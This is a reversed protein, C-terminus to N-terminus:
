EKIFQIKEIGIPGLVRSRKAIFHMRNFEGTSRTELVVDEPNVVVEFEYVRREGSLASYLTDLKFLGGRDRDFNSSQIKVIQYRDKELLVIGKSLGNEDVIKREVRAGSEYADAFMSVIENTQEDREYVLLAYNGDIDSTIKALVFEKAWSNSWSNFSLFLVLFLALASKTSQGM